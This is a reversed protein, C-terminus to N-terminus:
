HKPSRARIRRRKNAERRIRAYGRPKFDAGTSSWSDYNEPLEDKGADKLEDVRANLRNRVAAPLLAAGAVIVSIPRLKM